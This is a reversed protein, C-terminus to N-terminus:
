QGRGRGVQVGAGVPDEEARLGDARGVVTLQLYRLVGQGTAEDYPATRLQQM